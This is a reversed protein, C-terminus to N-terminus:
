ECGSGGKFGTDWYSSGDPMIYPVGGRKEFFQKAGLLM